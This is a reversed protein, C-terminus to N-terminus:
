LRRPRLENATKKSLSDRSCISRRGAARAIGIEMIMDSRKFLGALEDADVARDVLVRFHMRQHAPLEAAANRLALALREQEGIDDVAFALAVVNRDDDAAKRGVPFDIADSQAAIEVLDVCAPRARGCGRDLRAEDLVRRAVVDDDLAVIEVLLALTEVANRYRDRRRAPIVRGVRRQRLVDGLVGVGAHLIDAVIAALHLRLRRSPMFGDSSSRGPM